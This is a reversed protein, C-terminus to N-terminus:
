VYSSYKGPEREHVRITFRDKYEKSLDFGIAQMNLNSSALLTNGSGLFPVLVRAGIPAFTQLVDQIMEIPRETPHIKNQPAVPPYAFNNYRGMHQIIAQGKRAYFFMEYSSGLYIQPSMTQGIAGKTWIAPIRRCAFNNKKILMSIPEFWPEPGFWMILWGEDKLVRYAQKLVNDLFPIYQSDPIENYQDVSISNDLKKIDNLAIGYPPDLEVIDFSKNPIDKIGDFFDRLAYCNVLNQRQVALPTAAKAAQLKASMEQTAFDRFMSEVRKLAEKRDKCQALEPLVEMAEALRINQVVAAPSKGLMTATDRKSWGVADSSTSVKEGYVGKQLNDIERCLIANEQWTLDKRCANEALEISRQEALTLENEYVRVPILDIEAVGCARMRRGGALLHYKGETDLRVALPQIIGEKKLSAALEAINGYDDRFREGVIIDERKLIAVKM